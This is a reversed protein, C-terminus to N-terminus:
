HREALEMYSLQNQGYFTQLTIQFLNCSLKEVSRAVYSSSIM